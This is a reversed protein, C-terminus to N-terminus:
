FVERWYGWEFLDCRNIDQIIPAAGFLMASKQTTCNRAFIDSETDPNPEKDKKVHPFVIPTPAIGATSLLGKIITRAPQHAQNLDVMYYFNNGRNGICSDSAALSYTAFIIKGQFTISHSLAKEGDEELKLKWGYHNIIDNSNLTPSIFDGWNFLDSHEIPNAPEQDSLSDLIIYQYDDVSTSLPHARYGSGLSITIPRNGLNPNYSIDPRNFFRRNGPGAGTNIDALLHIGTALDADSDSAGHESNLDLRWLRGGVDAAYIRDIYGNGTVDIPVPDAAFSSTMQNHQKHKAADFLLKGTEADIIYISTGINHSIRQDPGNLDTGDEEPDYGGGAILVVKPNGKWQIEAPILSSWTQGLKSFGSSVTPSNVRDYETYRGNIQWLLKPNSRNSIDLAFYSHGGRRMGFYLITKDDEDIVGDKNLDEQWLSFQGDLGYRKRGSQDHDTIAYVAPNKLLIRPIFSFIEKGTEPDIAHLYGSNTMFFLTSTDSTYDVKIPRSHLSDEIELRFSKDINYGLIWARIRDKTYNDADPIGLREATLLSRIDNTIIESLTGSDKASQNQELLILQGNDGQTYVRRHNDLQNAAGGSTVHYGDQEYKNDSTKKAWYSIATKLIGGDTIALQGDLGVIEGTDSLQYRKLNGRWGPAKTPEFVTYYIDNGIELQSHSAFSIGPASLSAVSSDISIISDILASVLATYDNAPYFKGNSVEAIEELTQRAKDGNLDDGLFGGITDVSIIQKDPIDNRFDLNNMAYSLEGSCSGEEDDYLCSTTLQSPHPGVTRKFLNVISSDSSDDYTPKGDSFLIVKSATCQEMPPAIYNNSAIISDPSQEPLSNKGYKIDSGRLYQYAEFLTESLPTNGEPKYNRITSAAQQRIEAIPGMPISVYGGEPNSAQRTPDAVTPGQDFRMISLNINEVSNIVEIAANTLVQMRTKEVGESYTQALYNLYNGTFIHSYYRGNNWDAINEILSGSKFISWSYPASLFNLPTEILDFGEIIRSFHRYFKVGAVVTDPKNAKCDLIDGDDPQIKINKNDVLESQTSPANWSGYKIFLIYRHYYYRLQGHYFGNNDLHEEALSCQMHSKNIEFRKISNAIDNNLQINNDFRFIYNADKEFGYIDNPYIISPDYARGNNDLNSLEIMSRSTDMIMLVNPNIEQNNGTFIEIDDAYSFITSCIFLYFIIVLKILNNM